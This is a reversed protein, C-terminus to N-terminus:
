FGLEGLWGAVSSQVKDPNNQAIDGIGAFNFGPLVFVDYDGVSKEVTPILENYDSEKIDTVSCDDHEDIFTLIGNYCDQNFNGDDIGSSTIICVSIPTGEDASATCVGVTMVLAAAAAMFGAFKTFKM